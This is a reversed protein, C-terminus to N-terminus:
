PLDDGRAYTDWLDQIVGALQMCKDIDRAGDRALEKELDIQIPTMAMLVKFLRVFGAHKQQEPLRNLADSRIDYQVVLSHPLWFARKKRILWYRVLWPWGHLRVYLGLAFLLLAGCVFPSWGRTEPKFYWMYFGAVTFLVILFVSKDVVNLSHAILYLQKRHRLSVDPHVVLQPPRAM